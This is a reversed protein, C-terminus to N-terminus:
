EGWLLLLLIFLDDEAKGLNHQLSELLEEPLAVSNADQAHEFTIDDVISSAERLLDIASATARTFGRQQWPPLKHQNISM